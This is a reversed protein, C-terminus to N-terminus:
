TGIVPDGCAIVGADLSSIQGIRLYSFLLVEVNIHETGFFWLVSLWKTTLICKWGSLWMLTSVKTLDVM